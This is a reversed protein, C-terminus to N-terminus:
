CCHTAINAHKPKSESRIKGEKFNQKSQLIKRSFYYPALPLDNCPMKKENFSCCGRWFDGLWVSDLLSCLQEHLFIGASRLFTENM